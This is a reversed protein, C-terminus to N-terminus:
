ADPASSTQHRSEDSQMRQRLSSLLRLLDARDAGDLEAFLRALSEQYTRFQDAVRDRNCTLEILTVRRDTAHPIRRVLGESELNDVLATVNRPTVDLADALDAMKRPGHCHVAYLLKLRTPSAGAEAAKRNSWREFAASFAATAAALADSPSVAPEGAPTAPRGAPTAGSRTGSLPDPGLNGTSM